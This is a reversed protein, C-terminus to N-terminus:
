SAEGNNGKHGGILREQGSQILKRKQQNSVSPTRSIGQGTGSNHCLYPFMEQIVIRM